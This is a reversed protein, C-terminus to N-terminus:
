TSYIESATAADAAVAFTPPAPEHASKTDDGVAYGVCTSLHRSNVGTPINNFQNIIDIM